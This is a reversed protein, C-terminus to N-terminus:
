RSFPLCKSEKRPMCCGRHIRPLPPPSPANSSAPVWLGALHCVGHEQMVVVVVGDRRWGLVRRGRREVKGNTDKRVGTGGGVDGGGGGGGGGGGDRGGNEM